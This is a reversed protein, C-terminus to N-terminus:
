INLTYTDQCIGRAGFGEKQHILGRNLSTGDHSTSIGFDFYKMHAYVDRILYNILFDLAGIEKGERSAAIYQAHAVNASLYIIMGALPKGFNDSVTHLRVNDPFIQILKSIEELSHTPKVGHREHLNNTLIEWFINLIPKTDLILNSNNAKKIGRIRQSTFVPTQSLDITSSICRNKLTAGLRTLIYLDEESPSTHYIHPIAKYTITLFNENTAANILLSFMHEVKETTAKDDLLLGGFTLGPHSHLSDGVRAAPFLARTQCGERIIYSNDIFRDAHYDMYDRQFLFTANKSKKIFADWEEKNHANYRVIEMKYM